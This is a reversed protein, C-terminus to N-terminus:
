EQNVCILLPLNAKSFVVRVRREPLPLANNMLLHFIFTELDTLIYPESGLDILQVQFKDIAIIVVISRNDSLWLDFYLLNCFRSLKFACNLVHHRRRQALEIFIQRRIM